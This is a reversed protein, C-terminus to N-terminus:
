AAASSRCRLARLPLLVFAAVRQVIMTIFPRLDDFSFWALRLRTPADPIEAPKPEDRYHRRAAVGLNEALFREGEIQRGVTLAHGSLDLHMARVVDLGGDDEFMRFQAGVRPNFDLLLYTGTRRDFRWDTDFIGCYGIRRCLERVSHEIDENRETRAYATAGAHPPYSWFKRGTFIRAVDSSATCYGHVFWDEADDDPLYEQVVVDSGGPWRDFAERVRRVDAATRVVTTGKVVPRTLRTWPDNPKVVVPLPLGTLTAELDDGTKVRSTAPTPVGSRLCIEYLGRKSALQRPLDPPVAPFIARDALAETGEAVMVAAEDDTCVLMPRAPLGDVVEVLRDLLAQQDPEGRSSLKVQGTLYRSTSAPTVGEETVAYVPVGARGLTRIVGVTGHHIPYHGVRVLLVPLGRDLDPPVTLRRDGRPLHRLVADITRQFARTPVTAKAPEIPNM